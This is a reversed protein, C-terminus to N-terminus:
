FPLDDEDDELEAFSSPAELASPAPTNEARPPVGYSEGASPSDQRREAFHAEDAVIEVSVRNNGDKDQWKRQQLRGAVAVLQGKHFWKSTFEATQRWCTIDFFDAQREEGRSAFDRDVALTFSTVAIGSQTRRLEPDRTLRGMLVVKNLM